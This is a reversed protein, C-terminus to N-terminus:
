ILAMGDDNECLLMRHANLMDNFGSFLRSVVHFFDNMYDWILPQLDYIEVIGSAKKIEVHAEIDVVFSAIDFCSIDCFRESM